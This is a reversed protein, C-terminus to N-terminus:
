GMEVNKKLKEDTKDDVGDWVMWRHLLLNSSANFFTRPGEISLLLNLLRSLLRSTSIDESRDLLLVIFATFFKVRIQTHTVFGRSPTRLFFYTPVWWMSLFSDCGKGDMTMIGVTTSEANSIEFWNRNSSSEFRTPRYDGNRMYGRKDIIQLMADLPM